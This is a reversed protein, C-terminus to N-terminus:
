FSVGHMRYLGTIQAAVAFMLLYQFTQQPPMPNLLPFATIVGLVLVLLHCVLQGNAMIEDLRTGAFQSTQASASPPPPPYGYGSGSGSGSASSSATTGSGFANPDYNPDIHRKYFRVKKKELVSVANGGPMFEMKSLMLQWREDNAWDYTTHAPASASSMSPVSLCVGTQYRPSDISPHTSSHSQYVCRRPTHNIHLTFTHLLLCIRFFFISFLIHLTAHISSCDLM